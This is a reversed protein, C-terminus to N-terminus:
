AMLNLGNDWLIYRFCSKLVELILKLGNPNPLFPLYLFSAGNQCSELRIDNGNNLYELHFDRPFWKTGTVYVPRVTIRTIRKFQLSNSFIIRILFNHRTWLKGVGYWKCWESLRNFFNMWIVTRENKLVDSNRYKWFQEFFTLIKFFSLVHFLQAIENDKWRYIM